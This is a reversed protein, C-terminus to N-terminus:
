TGDDDNLSWDYRYSKVRVLNELQVLLDEDAYRTIHAIVGGESAFDERFWKYISSATIQGGEVKVGRPHNIYDRAAQDLDDNLSDAKWAGRRLNPCGVSACNVAYHVRSDKFEPRLIDHEINDLSLEQGEVTVLTESWPGTAFPHPKIRRISSIPYHNVIVQVTLANYLNVWYVFRDDPDMSSPELKSATTLYARLKDRDAQSQNLRGYSFRNLGDPSEIVYQETLDNWVQHDQDGAYAPLGLPLFAAFILTLLTRYANKM